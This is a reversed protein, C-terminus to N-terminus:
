RLLVHPSASMRSFKKLPAPPLGQNFETVWYQWPTAFPVTLQLPKPVGAPLRPPM